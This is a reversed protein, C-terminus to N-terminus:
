ILHLSARLAAHVIAQIALLVLCAEVFRFLAEDAEICSLCIQCVPERGFRVFPVPHPNACFRIEDRAVITVDLDSFAAVPERARLALFVEALGSTVIIVEALLIVPRINVFLCGVLVVLSPTGLKMPMGAQQLFAILRHRTLEVTIDQVVHFEVRM